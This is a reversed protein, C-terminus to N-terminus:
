PQLADPNGDVTIVVEKISPFQKLTATVQAKIAEVSCAGAVGKALDSSFDVNAVGAAITLNKLATAVNINTMMGDAAEEPTPGAILQSVTARAPTQTRPIKRSVAAVNDCTNSGRRSFYIQVTRYDSVLMLPIRVMNELQGDKASYNFVDLFAPGSDAFNLQAAFPGFQGVDPSLATVFSEAVVSNAVVLRYNVNNEFVRASGKIQIPSTVSTGPAPSAVKINAETLLPATEAGDASYTETPPPPAPRGCACLLLLFIGFGLIWIGVSKIGNPNPIQSESNEIM